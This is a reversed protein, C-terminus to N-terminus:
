KCGNILYNAHFQATDYTGNFYSHWAPYSQLVELSPLGLKEIIFEKSTHLTEPTFAFINFGDMRHLEEENLTGMVLRVYKTGADTTIRLLSQLLWDDKIPVNRRAVSDCSVMHPFVVGKFKVEDLYREM